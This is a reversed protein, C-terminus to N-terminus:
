WIGSLLYKKYIKAFLLENEINKVSSPISQYDSTSQYLFSRCYLSNTSSPLNLSSKHRTNYQHKKELCKNSEDSHSCELIRTPLHSDQVRHSHKGNAFKIIEDIHLMKHKHYNNPSAEEGTILNFCKNQIKQLKTQDGQRLMNGWLILGYTLHSYIHSYYLVKKAHITLSHKGTRLM